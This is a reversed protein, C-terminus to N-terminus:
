DQGTVADQMVEVMPGRPKRSFVENIIAISKEDTVNRLVHAKDFFITLGLYGAKRVKDPKDASENMVGTYMDWFNKPDFTSAERGAVMAEYDKHFQSTKGRNKFIKKAKNIKERFMPTYGNRGNVRADEYIDEVVKFAEDSGVLKVLAAVEEKNKESLNMKFMLNNITEAM